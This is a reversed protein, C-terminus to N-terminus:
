HPEHRGMGFAMLAAGKADERGACHAELRGIAAEVRDLPRTQEAEREFADSVGEAVDVPVEVREAELAVQEEGAVDGFVPRPPVPGRRGPLAAHDLPERPPMASLGPARGRTDDPRLAPPQARADSVGWRIVRIRVDLV